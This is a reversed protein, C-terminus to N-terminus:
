RKKKVKVFPINVSMGIPPQSQSVLWFYMKGTFLFKLRDLLTGKWVSIIEEDDKYAPLDSCGEATFTINQQKFKVPKM